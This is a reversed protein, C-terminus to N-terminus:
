AEFKPSYKHITLHNDQEYTIKTFLLKSIVNEANMFNLTKTILVTASMFFSNVSFLLSCESLVLFISIGCDVDGPIATGSPTDNSHSYLFNEM